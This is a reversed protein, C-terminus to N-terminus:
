LVKFLRLVAGEIPIDKTESEALNNFIEILEPHNELLSPELSELSTILLDFPREFVTLHERYSLIATDLLLEALKFPADFPSSSKRGEILVRLYATRNPFMPFPLPCVSDLIFKSLLRCVRGNGDVFPHLDVFHFQAFAALAFTYLIRTEEERFREPIRM